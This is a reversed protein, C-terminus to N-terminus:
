ASASAASASSSISLICRLTPPCTLLIASCCSVPRPRCFTVIPSSSSSYATATLSISSPPSPSSVQPHRPRCHQIYSIMVHNSHPLRVPLIANIFQCGCVCMSSASSSFPTPPKCLSHPPHHSTIPCYPVHPSTSDHCAPLTIPTIPLICYADVIPILHSSHTLPHHSSQTLQTSSHMCLIALSSPRISINDISGKQM